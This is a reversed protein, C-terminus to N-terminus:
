PREELARRVDEATIKRAGPRAQIVPLGNVQIIPARASAGKRVLDSVAKGFRMSRAAAYRKAAAFADDDLTLTTRAMQNMKKFTICLQIEHM